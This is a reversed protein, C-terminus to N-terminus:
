HVICIRVLVVEIGKKLYNFMSVARELPHRFVAFLRGRQQQNFLQEADFVHRIVIVEALRSEVLGLRKAKELGPIHTTDVNVFKSPENM